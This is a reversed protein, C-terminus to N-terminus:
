KTYGCVEDWYAKREQALTEGEEVKIAPNQKSADDKQKTENSCSCFLLMSMMILALTLVNRKMM